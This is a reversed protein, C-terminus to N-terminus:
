HTPRTRHDEDIHESVKIFGHQEENVAGYEVPTKNILCSCLCRIVSELTNQM